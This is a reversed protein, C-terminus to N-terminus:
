RATAVYGSYEGYWHSADGFDIMGEIGANERRFLEILREVLRSEVLPRRRRRLNIRSAVEAVGGALGYAGLTNREGSAHFFNKGSCQRAYNLVRQLKPAMPYAGPNDRGPQFRGVQRLGAFEGFGDAFAAPDAYVHRDSAVYVRDRGFVEFVAELQRRYFGCNVLHPPGFEIARDFGHCIAGTRLYHWYASVTREVPDRLVVLARSDPFVRVIAECASRSILYSTSADLRVRGHGRFCEEYAAEIEADPMFFRNGPHAFLTRHCDFDGRSFLMPEKPSSLEVEAFAAAIAAALSSTGCKQAGLLFLHSTGM